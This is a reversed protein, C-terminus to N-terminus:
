PSTNGSSAVPFLYFSKDVVFGLSDLRYIKLVFSLYRLNIWDDCIRLVVFFDTM